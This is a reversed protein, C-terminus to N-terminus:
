IAVSHTGSTTPSPLSVADRRGRVFPWAGIACCLAPIIVWYIPIRWFFGHFMAMVAMEVALYLAPAVAAILRQVPRAGTRRALAAALAGTPLLTALWPLYAPGDKSVVICTSDNVLLTATASVLPNDPGCLQPTILWAVLLKLSLLAVIVAAVGPLVVKRLFSMPGEKARRVNRGFAAWDPVQALAEADPDPSRADQRERHCEELHAAIEAVIEQRVEPTLELNALREDVLREWDRM